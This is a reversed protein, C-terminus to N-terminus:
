PPSSVDSDPAAPEVVREGALPLRAMTEYVPGSRSLRSAVLDIGDVEWSVGEFPHLAEGIRQVDSARWPAKCRALTVHPHFRRAETPEGRRELAERIRAHLADLAGAEAADGVGLWVVRPRREPFTGVREIRVQFRPLAVVVPTLLRALAALQDGSREGFFHLTLHLNERAVWRAGPLQRRAAEVAQGIEGSLRLPVFLALFLRM